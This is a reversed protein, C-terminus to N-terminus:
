SLVNSILMALRSISFELANVNQNKFWEQSTRSKKRKFTNVSVNSIKEYKNIVHVLFHDLRIM